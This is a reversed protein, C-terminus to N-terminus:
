VFRCHKPLTNSFVYIKGRKAWLQDSKTWIRESICFMIYKIYKYTNHIKYSGTFNPQLDTNKYKLWIKEFKWGKGGGFTHKFHVQPVSSYKQAAIQMGPILGSPPPPGPYFFLYKIKNNIQNTCIKTLM